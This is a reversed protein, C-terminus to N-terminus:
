PYSLMQRQILARTTFFLCGGTTSRTLCLGLMPSLVGGDVCYHRFQSISAVLLSASAVLLSASAVLLKKNSHEFM